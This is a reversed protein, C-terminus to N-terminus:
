VGVALVVHEHPRLELEQRALVEPALARDGELVVRDPKGVDREGAVPAEEPARVVWVRFAGPRVRLLHERPLERTHRGLRHFPDDAQVGGLEVAEAQWGSLLADRGTYAPASH